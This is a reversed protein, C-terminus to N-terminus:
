GQQEGARAEGATVVAVLRGQQWVEGPAAMIERALHLAGEDGDAIFVEPASVIRGSGDRRYLRYETM